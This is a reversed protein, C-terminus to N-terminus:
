EYVYYDITQVGTTTSTSIRKVPKNEGDFVYTTAYEGKLVGNKYRLQRHNIEYGDEDYTRIRRSSLEGKTYYAVDSLTLTKGDAAYTYNEESRVVDDKGVMRKYYIRQRNKNYKTITKEVEGNAQVTNYTMTLVSDKDWEKSICITSTDKHKKVEVGEEKCQYDWVYKEKGKKYFTSRKKSKNPYYENYWTYKLKGKVYYYDISELTNTDIENIVSKSATDGRKDIKFFQRNNRISDFALYVQKSTQVGDKNYTTV